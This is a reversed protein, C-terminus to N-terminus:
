LTHAPKSADFGLIQTGGCFLPCYLGVIGGVRVGSVILGVWGVGVVGGVGVVQM